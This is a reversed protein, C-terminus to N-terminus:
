HMFRATASYQDNDQQQHHNGQDHQRDPTQLALGRGDFFHRRFHHDPGHGPGDHHINGFTPPTQFRHLGRYGLGAPFDDQLLGAEVTGQQPRAAANLRM